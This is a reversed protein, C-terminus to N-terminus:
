HCEWPATISLHTKWTALSSAGGNTPGSIIWWSLSASPSSGALWNRNWNWRAKAPSPPPREGAGSRLWANVIRTGWPACNLIAIQDADVYEGLVGLTRHLVQDLDLSASLETIIRLLTDSRQRERELDITRQQVRMELTETLSRTEEFLRANQLAIAVQNSITRALEVEEPKLHYTQYNHM